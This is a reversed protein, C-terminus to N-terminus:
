TGSMALMFFGSLGLMVRMDSGSMKEIVAAGRGTLKGALSTLM